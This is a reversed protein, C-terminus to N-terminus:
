KSDIPLWAHVPKATALDVSFYHGQGPQDYARDIPLSLLHCYWLTGVGGHGVVAIDGAADDHLLNELHRTIRRQADVAREWGCVREHPRAFFQAVVQEFQDPPLPGTASRDHEGIDARLEPELGLKLGLLRATEVAKREMSSVLRGTRALFPQLALVQARARGISSLGWLDVPRALDIDVQPHTFYRLVAGMRANYRAERRAAAGTLRVRSAHVFRAGLV